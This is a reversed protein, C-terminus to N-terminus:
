SPKEKTSELEHLCLLFVFSSILLITIQREKEMELDYFDIDDVQDFTEDFRWIMLFGKEGKGISVNCM